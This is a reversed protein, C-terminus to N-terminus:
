EVLASLKRVRCEPMGYNKIWDAAEKRTAFIALKREADTHIHDQFWVSWLPMHSAIKHEARPM